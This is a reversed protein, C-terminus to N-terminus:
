EIYKKKSEKTIIIKDETKYLIKLYQTFSNEFSYEAKHTYLFLLLSITNIINSNGYDILHLFDHPEKKYVQFTKELEYANQKVKDLSLTQTSMLDNLNQIFVTKYTKIADVAPLSIFSSNGTTGFYTKSKRGDLGYIFLNYMPMTQYDSTTNKCIRIKYYVIGWFDFIVYKYGDIDEYVFLANDGPHCFQGLAFDLAYDVCIEVFNEVPKKLLICDVIDKYEKFKFDNIEYIYCYWEYAIKSVTRLMEESAFLTNLSFTTNIKSNSMDLIKIDNDNTGKIQKLKDINGILVKQGNHEAPFLRKKDEYISSRKRSVLVDPISIGDIEMTAKYKIEAGKRETFGLSSRIFNLNAIAKKEYNDNTFKNHKHCVFKKTLKAGTLAYSIIDSVSLDDSNCYICRCM